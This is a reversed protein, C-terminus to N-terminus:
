DGAYRGWAAVLSQGLPGPLGTSLGPPTDGDGIWPRGRWEHGPATMYPVGASTFGGRPQTGLPQMTMGPQDPPHRRSTAQHHAARASPRHSGSRSTLLCSSGDAQRTNVQADGCGVRTRTSSPSPDTTALRLAHGVASVRVPTSVAASAPQGCSVPSSTTISGVPGAHSGIATNKEARPWWTNRTDDCFAASRRRNKDRRALLLPTSAPGDGGPLGFGDDGPVPGHGGLDAGTPAALLRPLGGSLGRLVTRM